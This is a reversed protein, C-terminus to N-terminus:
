DDQREKLRRLIAKGAEKAAVKVQLNLRSTGIDDATQLQGDRGASTVLLSEGLEHQTWTVQLRNGWADQKGPDIQRYTGDPKKQSDLWDAYLEVTRQTEKSSRLSIEYWIVYGLLSGFVMTPLGLKAAALLGNKRREGKELSNDIARALNAFGSFFFYLLQMALEVVAAVGNFLADM